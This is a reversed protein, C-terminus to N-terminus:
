THLTAGFRVFREERRLVHRLSSHISKWILDQDYDSIRMYKMHYNYLICICINIYNQKTNYVQSRATEGNTKLNTTSVIRILNISDIRYFYQIICIYICVRCSSIPMQFISALILIFLHRSEVLPQRDIPSGSHANNILAACPPQILRPINKPHAVPLLARARARLPHGSSKRIPDGSLRSAARLLSALFRIYGPSRSDPSPLSQPSFFPGSLPVSVMQGCINHGAYTSGCATLSFREDSVSQRNSPLFDSVFGTVEGSVCSSVLTETILFHLLLFLFISGGPTPEHRCSVARKSKINRVRTGITDHHRPPARVVRPERMKIKIGEICYVREMDPGALRLRGTVYFNSVFIKMFLIHYFIFYLYM